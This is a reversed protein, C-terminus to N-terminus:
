DSRWSFGALVVLDHRLRTAHAPAPATGLHPTFPDEFASSFLYQQADLRVSFRRDLRIVGGLALVGGVNTQREDGVGYGRQVIVAPGMGAVVGFRADADTLWAQVTGSLFMTHADFSPLSRSVAGEWTSSRSWAVGGDLQWRPSLGVAVRTGATTAEGALRRAGRPREPRELGHGVGPGLDTHLGGHVTIEVQAAAPTASLLVALTFPLGSLPQWM